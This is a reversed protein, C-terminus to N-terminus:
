AGASGNFRAAIRRWLYAEAGAGGGTVRWLGLCALIYVALCPLAVLAARLATLVRSDATLGAGLDKVAWLLLALLVLGAVSRWHSKIQVAVPLDILRSVIRSVHILIVLGIVARAVIVGPVGAILAGALMAPVSVLFQVLSLNASLGSRYISAVFPNLPAAPMMPLTALALGALIPGSTEWGPGLLVFIAEGSLLALTVMLPGVAFLMGSSYRLWLARREADNIATSFAAVMPRTLPLAIAQFPVENLQRAVAYRGFADNALFRGLIFNDLQWSIARLSQSVTVWTLIDSFESWRALSLRPRYPAVLYSLVNLVLSTTITGIAIAWYSRTALAVATVVALSALKSAIDMGAEFRMDYRRTFEAMRPSITGRLAPGLALWCMLPVLRDDRLYTALPGSLTVLLGTILAARFLTLTFATDYLKRDPERIRLLPTEMPVRTVMEVIVVVAMAKAVLGFDAPELIATLIVLSALDFLRSLLKGSVSWMGASVMGRVPKPQSSHKPDTM